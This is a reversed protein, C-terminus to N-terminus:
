SPMDDFCLVYRGLEEYFYAYKLFQERAPASMRVLDEEDYATDFDPHYEWTVTGKPIFQAAFLGIGHVSSIGLKTKVLLM